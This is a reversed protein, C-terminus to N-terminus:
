LSALLTSCIIVYTLNAYPYQQSQAELFLVHRLLTLSSQGKNYKKHMSM